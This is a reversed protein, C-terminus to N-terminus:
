QNLFQIVSKKIDLIQDPSYMNRVTGIFGENGGGHYMKGEILSGKYLDALLDKGEGYYVLENHNYILLQKYPFLRDCIASFHNTISKVIIVGHEITKSDISIEAIREDEESVGQAQRDRLRIEQIEIPSAGIKIMAPIYGKDNAAILQQDRNLPVNFLTAIQELSSPKVEAENHHDIRRYNAPISFFSNEQLEVGYIVVDDVNTYEKIVNHYSSLKATEWSLHNDLVIVGPINNLIRKIELMELDWGGLLFVYKKM